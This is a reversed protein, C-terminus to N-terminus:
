FRTLWPPPVTGGPRFPVSPPRGGWASRAIAQRPTAAFTRLGASCTLPHALGGILLTDVLPSSSGEGSPFAPPPGVGGQPGRSLKVPYPPALGLRVARARGCLRAPLSSGHLHVFMVVGFFLMLVLVLLCLLLTHSCYSFPPPRAGPPGRSRPRLAPSLHRALCAFMLIMMFMM